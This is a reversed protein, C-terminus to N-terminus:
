GGAKKAKYGKSTLFTVIKDRFDGQILIEGNKSSGGSGCLNKLSKELNKLADPSGEFGLILTVAKGKRQKTDLWVRLNQKEPALTETTQEENEFEFDPNTSFIIGGTNSKKNKSM